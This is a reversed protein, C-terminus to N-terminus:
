EKKVVILKLGFPSLLKLITDLTPNADPQELKQLTQYSIKTIKSMESLTLQLETRIFKAIVSISWEPHQQIMASVYERKRIQEIPSLPHFRKDM